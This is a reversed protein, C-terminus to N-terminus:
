VELDKSRAALVVEIVEPIIDGAKKLKIFDGIRIDRETIYDANHLTAAKVITGAILVPQLKANYTIKGTREVSPFISLLKTQM